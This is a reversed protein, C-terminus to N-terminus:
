GIDGWLFQVIALAALAATETRLIRKGLTVPQFGHRMAESAEESSFGGEPGIVLLLSDPRVQEKQIQALGQGAEGEWFFLKLSCEWPHGVLDAFESLPLIEPIRARGSQKAASLAIKEWRARRREIKERELRPVTRASVFPAIRRVGLETAKEVIWDMKDGKGLAQALTVELASDREARFSRLIEVEGSKETYARLVGEHEWGQDDFLTVRAGPRLRLVRRMHGLEDGSVWGRKKRVDIGRVFFRAM